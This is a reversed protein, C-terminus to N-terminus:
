EWAGITQLAGSVDFELVTFFMFYGLNKKGHDATITLMCGESSTESGRFGERGSEVDYVIGAKDFISKIQDLDSTGLDKTQDQQTM